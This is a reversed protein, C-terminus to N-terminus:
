WNKEYLVVEDQLADKILSNKLSNYTLVDVPMNLQEQLDNIFGFYAFGGLSGRDIVFDIDSKPTANGKAYSGFIAVKNVGYKVAVLSVINKIEDITKM